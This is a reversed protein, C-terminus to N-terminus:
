LLDITPIDLDHEETTNVQFYDIPSQSELLGGDGNSFPRNALIQDFSVIMTPTPITEHPTPDSPTQNVRQSTDPRATSDGGDGRISSRRRRRPPRPHYQYDPHQEQHRKVEQFAKERYADRVSQPEAHWQAGLHRSIQQVTMEPHKLRTILNHDRRYLIFSNMPRKVHDQAPNSEPLPHGISLPPPNFPPLPPSILADFIATTSKRVRGVRGMSQTRKDRSVPHGNHPKILRSPDITPGVGNVLGLEFSDVRAERKKVHTEPLVLPSELMDDDYVQWGSRAGLVPSGISRGPAPPLMMPTPMEPPLDRAYWNLLSEWANKDAAALPDSLPLTLRQTVTRRGTGVPAMVLPTPLDDFTDIVHSSSMSGPRTM